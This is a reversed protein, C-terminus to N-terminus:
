KSEKYAAVAFDSLPLAFVAARGRRPWGGLIQGRRTQAAVGLTAALLITAFRVDVM